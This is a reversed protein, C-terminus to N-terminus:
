HYLLLNSRFKLGGLGEASSRIWGIM